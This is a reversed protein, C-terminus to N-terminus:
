ILKGVLYTPAADIIKVHVFDGIAVPETLVVQKYNEARGKFTKQKGKETVLVMYTKRLHEKNKELSIKSCIETTRKSREKVVDTPIRGEM